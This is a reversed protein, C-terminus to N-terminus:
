YYQYKRRALYSLQAMMFEPRRSNPPPMEEVDATVTTGCEVGRRSNHMAMENGQSIITVCGHFIDEQILCHYKRGGSTVIKDDYGWRISNSMYEM